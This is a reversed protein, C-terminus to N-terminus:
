EEKEKTTMKIIDICVVKNIVYKMTNDVDNLKSGTSGVSRILVMYPETSLIDAYTKSLVAQVNMSDPEFSIWKGVIWRPDIIMYHVPGKCMEMYERISEYYCIYRNNPDISDLAQGLATSDIIVQRDQYQLTQKISLTVDVMSEKSLWKPM